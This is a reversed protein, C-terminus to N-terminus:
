LLFPTAKIMGRIYDQIRDLRRFKAVERMCSTQAGLGNRKATHVLLLEERQLVPMQRMPFCCCPVFPRVLFMRAARSTWSESSGPHVGSGQEVMTSNGLCSQRLLFRSCLLLLFPPLTYKKM